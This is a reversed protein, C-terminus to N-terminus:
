YQHNHDFQKRAICMNLRRYESDFQSIYSEGAVLKFGKYAADTSVVVSLALQPGITIVANM